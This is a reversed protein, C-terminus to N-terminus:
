AIAATEDTHPAVRRTRVPMSLPGFLLDEISPSM